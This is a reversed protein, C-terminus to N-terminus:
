MVELNLKSNPIKQKEQKRWDM